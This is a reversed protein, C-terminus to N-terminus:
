LRGAKCIPLEDGKKRYEGKSCRHIRPCYIYAFSARLRLHIPFAALLFKPDLGRVPGLRPMLTCRATIYAFATRERAIITYSTTSQLSFRENHSLTKRTQRRNRVGGGCHGVVVNKAVVKCDFIRGISVCEPLWTWATSIGGHRNAVDTENSFPLEVTKEINQKTWFIRGMSNTNWLLVCLKSRSHFIVNDGARETGIMKTRCSDSQFRFRLYKSM